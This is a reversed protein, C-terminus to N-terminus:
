RVTGDTPGRSPIEVDDGTVGRIGLGAEPERGFRFGSLGAADVGRRLCLVQFTRGLMEPHLLTQLGRRKGADLSTIFGPHSDLLGTLFHHQDTFGAVSMGAAIGAEAISTWDVHATIDAHGVNSLPSPVVRHAAVARLTGCSREAAYYQARGYGYDIALIYGRELRGAIARTWASAALNIETQYAGHVQPLAAAAVSLEDNSLAGAEFELADANVSVYREQWSASNEGRSILHVPMADLLENSVCVGSFPELEDVTSRWTVRGGFERLTGAQAAQLPAFPEVIVYRIADAFGDKAATAAGLIDAALRGDHAGQEVIVFEAPQGLHRWMERLQLALMEGFLSGVSVNTFYDGGRGIVCRGSTYYGHAPHYLALEMFRAFTMPGGRAIEDRILRVLAPEGGPDDTRSTQRKSKASSQM